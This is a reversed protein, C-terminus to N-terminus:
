WRLCRRWSRSSMSSHGAPPSSSSRHRLRLLRRRRHPGRLGLREHGPHRAQHQGGGPIIDHNGRSTSSRRRRGTTSLPSWEPSSTRWSPEADATLLRGGLRRYGRRAKSPKTQLGLLELDLFDAMSQFASDAVEDMDVGNFDDVFHGAIIWLLIRQVAQLADATRNFHWVSAAAGFCM